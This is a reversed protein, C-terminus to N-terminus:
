FGGEREVHQVRSGAGGAEMAERVLRAVGPRLPVKGADVLQMFLETKRAHLRRILSDRREPTSYVSPWETSAFYAAMREKGGGTELLKGYAAENWSVSPLTAYESFALNFAVRHADRETDALVGDCDFILAELM